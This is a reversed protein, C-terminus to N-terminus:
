SRVKRHYSKFLHGGPKVLEVHIVTSSNPCDNLRLDAGGAHLNFLADYNKIACQKSKIYATNQM